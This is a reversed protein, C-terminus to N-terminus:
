GITPQILLQKHKILKEYRNLRDVRRHPAFGWGDPARMGVNMVCM